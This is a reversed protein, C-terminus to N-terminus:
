KIKEVPIRWNPDKTSYVSNPYVYGDVIKLSLVAERGAKFGIVPKDKLQFFVSPVNDKSGVFNWSCYFIKNQVVLQASEDKNLILTWQFGSEDKFSYTGSYYVLKIDDYSHTLGDMKLTGNELICHIYTRAMNGMDKCLVLYWDNEKPIVKVVNSENSPGDQKGSLFCSREYCDGNPCENEYQEELYAQLSKTCYTQVAKEFSMDSVQTEFLYKEYFDKLFTKVTQQDLSNQTQEAVVELPAALNESVSFPVVSSASATGSILIALLLYNRKVFFPSTKMSM